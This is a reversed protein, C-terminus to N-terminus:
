GTIWKAIKFQIGALRNSDIRGIKGALVEKSVVALRTVRILSQIKLGSPVFDTDEETIIEDIGNIMHFTQSSIMCILWDDYPGPVAKVVLTPRLKGPSHNTQPFSVLVIAGEHIM